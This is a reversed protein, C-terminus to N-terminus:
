NAAAFFSCSATGLHKAGRFSKRRRRPVEREARSLFSPPKKDGENPIEVHGCESVTWEVHIKNTKTVKANREEWFGGSVTSDPLIASKVDIASTDFAASLDLGVVAVVKGKAKASVWATHARTLATTCSRGKRFGNQSTPLIDKAKMFAELDEKAVTKLMTSLACL